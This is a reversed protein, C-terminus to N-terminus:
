QREFAGIDMYTGVQPPLGDCDTAFALVNDLYKNLAVTDTAKLRISDGPLANFDPTGRVNGTVGVASNDSNLLGITASTYNKSGTGLNALDAFSVLTGGPAAVNMTNYRWNNVQTSSAKSNSAILKGTNSANTALVINGIVRRDQTADNVSRFLTAGAGAKAVIVGQPGTGAAVASSVGSYNAPVLFTLTSSSATTALWTGDINTGGDGSTGYIKLKANVPLIQFGRAELPFYATIRLGGESTYDTGPTVVYTFNLGKHLVFGVDAPSAIGIVGANSSTYVTFKFQNSNVVTSVTQEGNIQAAPSANTSRVITKAVAFADGVSLGHPTLTNCTVDMLYDGNANVTPTTHTFAVGDGDAVNAILGFALPTAGGCDDLVTTAPTASENIVTNRRVIASGLSNELFLLPDTSATAPTRVLVNAEVNCSYAGGSGTSNFGPYVKVLSRATPSTQRFYNGSITCNGASSVVSVTHGKVGDVFCQSIAINGSPGIDIGNVLSSQTSGSCNISCRQISITDCLGASCDIPAFASAGTYGYVINKIDINNCNASTKIISGCNNFTLSELKYSTGGSEINIVHELYGVFSIGYIEIASGYFSFASYETSGGSITVAEAPYRKIKAPNLANGCLIDIAPATYTGARLYITKGAGAVSAANMVEVAKGITAYPASVAGTGSTDNGTTAVYLAGSEISSDATSASGTITPFWLPTLAVSGSSAAAVTLSLAVSDAVGASNTARFVLGTVTAATTPTGSIVGASSVSLGAPLTGAQLAITPTPTGTFDLSATYPVGVTASALAGTTISPLVGRTWKLTVNIEGPM